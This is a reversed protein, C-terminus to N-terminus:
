IYIPYNALSSEVRELFLLVQSVHTSDKSIYRPYDVELDVRQPLLILHYFSSTQKKSGERSALVTSKVEEDDLLDFLIM